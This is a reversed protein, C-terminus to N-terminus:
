RLLVVSRTRTFGGAELRYLYVGGSVSLGAWNRGDWRISHVGAPREGKDLERVLRGAVDYVKLL